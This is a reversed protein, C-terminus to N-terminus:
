RVPSPGAQRIWERWAVYLGSTVVVVAGLITLTSPTTSFLLVGYVTAWVLLLYTFPQLVIAPTFELAKIFLMHGTISTASIASMLLWSRLDLPQWSAIGFPTAILATLVGTYLTSTMFSDQRSALRTLINYLAWCVTAGIAFIMGVNNLAFHPGIILLAGIFGVMVATRRRWGVAEGLLPASLMTVILPSTAFIAHMDALGLYRLAVTFCAIDGLLVIARSLQLVPRQARAAALLQGQWSAYLVMFLAFAWLRVTMFQGLPVANALFKTLADQLGFVATALICLFIGLSAATKQAPAVPATSFTM